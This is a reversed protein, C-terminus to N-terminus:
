MRKKEDNGAGTGKYKTHTNNFNYTLRLTINRNYNYCNKTTETGMGHMTWRERVTKFIDEATLMVVWRENDFSKRIAADVSIRGRSEVFGDYSNTNARVSFGAMLSKSFVFRNNMKFGFSPKNLNRSCGYDKANFIQQQYTLELTPRYVKFIPALYITGYLSQYHDFNMNSTYTIAQNDLLRDVWVMADKIYNYGCTASIWRYTASTEINYVKEPRLTPNGGEYMYRNDYQMFNRLNHYSPRHMKETMSLQWSWDSGRWAVALNPFLNHYTRSVDDQKVGFLFYNRVVDEYRVGAGMHWHGISLDYQAFGAISHEKIDTESSKVYNEINTFVGHSKTKILETGVKLKGGMMPFDLILKAAYMRNREKSSSHVERDELKESTETVVDNRENTGDYYTGNLDIGMKGIKGQYYANLTHRQFTPNLNMNAIVVGEMVGNRVFDQQSWGTSNSHFMTYYQYSAGISNSDNVLYDTALYESVGAQRAKTPIYEKIEINDNDTHIGIDLTNDEGFASSYIYADNIIEFKRTQYKLMLEEYGNWWTNNGVSADNRISLGEVTRKRTNIRIVSEVEANYQAGPNTIVEVSKIDESKLQQLEQSNLIRKNNIYILPSGKGFVNVSGGSVSVRPLQGLVDLATGMRALLTGEVAIEMGGMTTQYQPTGKVVVGKLMHNDPTLRITGMQTSNCCKYTTKYGVFSIRALLQKQECPIVFLGSENSVGGAVLTSDDASLLAINAYAVPHNQQDVITGKYRPTSKQPCEVIIENGKVTMRIPYFGIMQQIADPLSKNRIKTTIRFDELENYMFSITYVKYQENLQKLVESISVNNYERNIIQAQGTLALCCIYLSLFLRRM